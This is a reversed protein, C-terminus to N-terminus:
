LSQSIICNCGYVSGLPNPILALAQFSLGVWRSGGSRLPLGSQCPSRASSGWSAWFGERM